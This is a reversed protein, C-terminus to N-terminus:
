ARLKASLSSLHDDKFLIRNRNIQQRMSRDSMYPRRWRVLGAEALIGDLAKGTSAGAFLNIQFREGSRAREVLAQPVMKPYGATFGSIFLNTGEGIHRCATAADTIRAKLPAYRIRADIM